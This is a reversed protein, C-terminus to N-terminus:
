NVSEKFVKSTRFKIKKVGKVKVINKNILSYGKREKLETLTFVGLSNLSVSEGKILAEKIIEIFDDYVKKCFSKSLNLRESLENVFENKNM